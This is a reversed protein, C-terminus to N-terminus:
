ASLESYSHHRNHRTACPGCYPGSQRMRSRHWRECLTHQSREHPWRESLIRTSNRFPRIFHVRRRQLHGSSATPLVPPQVAPVLRWARDLLLGRRRGAWCGRVQAGAGDATRKCSDTATSRGAGIRNASLLRGLVRSTLTLTRGLRSSTRTRSVVSSSSSSHAVTQQPLTGERGM